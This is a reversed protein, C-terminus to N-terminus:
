WQTRRLRMQTYRQAGETRHLETVSRNSYNRLNQRMAMRSAGYKAYNDKYINSYREHWKYNAHLTNRYDNTNHGRRTMRQSDYQARTIPYRDKKTIGSSKYNGSYKAMNRKAASTAAYSIAGKNMRSYKGYGTSKTYDYNGQKWMPVAAKNMLELTKEESWGSKILTDYIRNWTDEDHVMLNYNHLSYGDGDKTFWWAGGQDFIDQITDDELGMQQLRGWTDIYSAPDKSVWAPIYSMGMVYRHTQKYADSQNHWDFGVPRAYYSAEYGAYNNKDKQRAFLSPSLVTLLEQPTFV